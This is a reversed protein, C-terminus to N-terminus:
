VLDSDGLTFFWRDRFYPTDHVASAIALFWPTGRVRYGHEQMRLFRPDMHNWVSCVMGTGDEMARAEAAALLAAMADGDDPGVLWDVVYSTHPRLLNGVGYVAVARLTGSARERCEYLVYRHECHDAYRWNLYRHDRVTAVGLGPELRDFLRDVDTGFRGVTGVVLASPVARAATGPPLERFTVDWDRAIQWGLHRAGSRWGAGPLGYVLPAQDEGTGLWRELFAQGLRAFLGPEGGHRLWETRVCHDVAQAAFTRRGGLTIAVPVAAYVGVVGEDRHVALMQQMRRTPNELFKWRWHLPSRAARGHPGSAFVRNHCALVAAEDGPEISRIVVPDADDSPTTM